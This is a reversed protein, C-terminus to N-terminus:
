TDVYRTRLDDFNITIDNPYNIIVKLENKELFNRLIDLYRCYTTNDIM